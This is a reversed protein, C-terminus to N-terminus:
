SNFGCHYSAPSFFMVGFVARMQQLSLFTETTMGNISDRFAQWFRQALLGFVIPVALMTAFAVQPVPTRNLLNQTVVIIAFGLWLLMGTGVIGIARQSMQARRLAGLNFVLFVVETIILAIAFNPNNM